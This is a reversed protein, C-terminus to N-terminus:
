LASGSMSAEQVISEFGSVRPCTCSMGTRKSGGCAWWRCSKSAARDLQFAASTACLMCSTGVHEDVSAQQLVNCLGNIHAHTCSMGQAHAAVRHGCIVHSVTMSAARDSRCAASTACRMYLIDNKSAAPRQCPWQSTSTHMVDGTCTSGGYAWWNCSNSATTPGVHLQHQM